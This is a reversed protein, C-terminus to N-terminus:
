KGVVSPSVSLDAIDGKKNDIEDNKEENPYIENPTATEEDGNKSPTGEGQEEELRKSIAAEKMTKLRYEATEKIDQLRRKVEEVKAQRRRKLEADAAAALAEEGERRLLRAEARLESESVTTISGWQDAKYDSELYVKKKGRGGFLGGFISDRKPKEVVVEERKPMGDMLEAPHVESAVGSVAFAGWLLFNHFIKGSDPGSAPPPSASIFFGVEDLISKRNQPM